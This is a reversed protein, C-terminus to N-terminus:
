AIKPGFALFAPVEDSALGDSTWHLTGDLRLVAEVDMKGYAGILTAEYTGPAPEVFGRGRLSVAAMSGEYGIGIRRLDLTYPRGLMALALDTRGDAIASRIGSSSVTRGEITVPEVIDTEASLSSAIAQVGHADTSLKHGCKFDSGIVFSRVGCYRVLISVFESGALKSFDGSFDILLCLEIGAEELASLKQELSFIDGSFRHPRTVSKPNDKFTIAMPVLAPAKAVVRSVLARHGMHLGDFVGITAASAAPMGASGSLADDWSVVRL